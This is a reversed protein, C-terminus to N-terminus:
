GGCTRIKGLVKDSVPNILSVDVLSVIQPRNLTDLKTLLALLALSLQAGVAPVNRM